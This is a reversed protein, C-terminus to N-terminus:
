DKIHSLRAQDHLLYFFFGLFFRLRNMLFFINCKWLHVAGMEKLRFVV